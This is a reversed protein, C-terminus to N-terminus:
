RIFRIPCIGQESIPDFEHHDATVLEVQSRNALTLCLCDALSVRRWDAKYRGAQQWFDTHLDDSVVMELADLVQLAQQAREEGLERRTIYYVECLNLAHVLCVDESLLSQVVDAGEENRLFALLASSDVVVSM